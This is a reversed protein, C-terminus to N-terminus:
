NKQVINGDLDFIQLNAESVHFNLHILQCEGWTAKDGVYTAKIDSRNAKLRDALLIMKLLNAKSNM